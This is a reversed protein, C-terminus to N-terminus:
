SNFGLHHAYIWALTPSPTPHVPLRPSLQTCLGQPFSFPSGHPGQLCGPIYTNVSQLTPPTPPCRHCGGPHGSQSPHDPDPDQVKLLTPTHPSALLFSPMASKFSSKFIYKNIQNGQTKPQLAHAGSYSFARSCVPEAATPCQSAQRKAHPIRTGWVPIM